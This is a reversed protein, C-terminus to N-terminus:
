KTSPLSVFVAPALPSFPLRKGSGRGKKVCLDGRMPVPSLSLVIAFKSKV